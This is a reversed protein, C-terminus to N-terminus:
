YQYKKSTRHYGDCYRCKYVLQGKHYAEEETKFKVKRECSILKKVSLQALKSEKKYKNKKMNEKGFLDM